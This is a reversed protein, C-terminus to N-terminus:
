KSTSSELVTKFYEITYKLGTDLSFKPSWGLTNKALTIDPKRKVPDDSPLEEYIIKSNSNTMQIIKEALEKVTYEGPNGINVPGQYESNMMMTMGMLLDYIYQFSRTQSGDGYITIDKNQLAQCIFNSVVRGDDIDMFPGYTNFIRIIKYNIKSNILLTEAVRKGEDYCSRIGDCNVNGWYSETQPHVLPNGYVESTSSFLLKANNKKALEIMNKTGIYCTDLTFNPDRQYTKPSAPCALHYIEDFKYKHLKKHDQNVDGIVLAEINLNKANNNTCYLNDLIIVKNDRCLLKCLNYGIFGLGGTVLITKM